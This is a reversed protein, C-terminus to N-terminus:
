KESVFDLMCSSRYWSSEETIGGGVFTLGGDWRKVVNGNLGILDQCTYWGNENEGKRLRLVEEWRKWWEREDEREWGEAVPLLGYCCDGGSEGGGCQMDEEYYVTYKGKRVGDVDEDDNCVENLMKRPKETKSATVDEFSLLSPEVGTDSKESVTDQIKPCGSSRIKWFSLAATLLALWTWLNNLATVLGFNLYNFALAEVNSDLLVNMTKKQKPKLITNSLFFSHISSYPLPISFPSSILLPQPIKILHRSDIVFSAYKRPM